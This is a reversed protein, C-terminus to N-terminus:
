RRFQVWKVTELIVLMLVSLALCIGLQVATLPTTNFFDNAIPVYILAMQLLFTVAIAGTMIRNSFWGLNFLSDRFSRTSLANSMQALTLTTFVMTRWVATDYGQQFGWYGVALSLIGMVLGVWLISVGLGDAFVGSAPNQPKREMTGKEAQEVALALGPVGDTM